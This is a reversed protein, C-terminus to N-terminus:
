HPKTSELTVPPLQPGRPTATLARDPSSAGASRSLFTALDQVEVRETAQGTVLQYKETAIGMVIAADKASKAEDLLELAREAAGIVLAKFLGSMKQRAEVTAQEVEQPSVSKPIDGDRWRVVTSMSVDEAAATPKLKGRNGALTAKTRGIKEATYTRRGM